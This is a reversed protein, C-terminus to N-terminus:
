FDLPCRMLWDSVAECSLKQITALPLNPISKQLSSQYEKLVESLHQNAPDSNISSIIQLQSEYSRKCNDITAYLDPYNKNLVDLINQGELYNDIM